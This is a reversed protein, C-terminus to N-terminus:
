VTGEPTYKFNLLGGEFTSILLNNSNGATIDVITKNPIDLLSFYSRKFKSESGDENNIMILGSETGLWIQNVSDEYITEINDNSLGEMSDLKITEFNVAISSRQSSILYNLGGGRTGIWINGLYDELLSQIDNHSISNADNTRFQFTTFFGTKPSYRNLDRKVKKAIENYENAKEGNGYVEDLIRSYSKYAFWACLNAGTNYDGRAYGDSVFLSPFLWVDKDERSNSLSDLIACTGDVLAQHDLFFQKDNSHRYYLGSLISSGLSNCVAHNIGGEYKKGKERIGYKFAWLISKKVLDPNSWASPIMANICDKMNVGYNLHGKGVYPTTGFRVCAVDGNADTSISNNCLIISRKLYAATFPDEEMELNGTMNDFFSQTERLWDYIGKTKFFQYDEPVTHFM